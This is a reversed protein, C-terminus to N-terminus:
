IRDGGSSRLQPEARRFPPHFSREPDDHGSTGTAKSNDDLTPQRSASWGADLHAAVDRDASDPVHAYLEMSLRATAHGLRSQIVRPHEGQEVMLSAAVHRLGHFTLRDDLDARTVAPKFTRAEFFRRVPGGQPATFVLDEKTAGPRHEALHQALEDVLFTPLSMTRRSSRTKTDATHFVGEVEAITRRVTLTRRLFDIDGVQLGILESWRLGLVGSVLIMGRYPGPVADALRDLEELTLTPRERPPGSGLRISRAPSRSILDADVAANLVSKLVGVNTKVTAPALRSLMLDVCGKIHAPTIKASPRDGLAPVFHTELVNRDRALTTARKAPNSALWEDAWERFTTQGLAPDRWDGREMDTQIQALYKAADTKTPFTTPATLDRGFGDPYRAQWRGSPLKRIRGFQRRSM